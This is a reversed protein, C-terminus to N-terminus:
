GSIVDYNRMRTGGGAGGHCLVRVKVSSFRANWCINTAFIQKLRDFKHKQFHRFYLYMDTSHAIDPLVAKM